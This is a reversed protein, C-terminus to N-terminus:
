TNILCLTSTDTGYVPPSKTSAGQQGVTRRRQRRRVRKYRYKADQDGM